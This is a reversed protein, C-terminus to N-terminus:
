NKEGKHSDKGGKSDGLDSLQIPSEVPSVGKIEGYQKEYEEIQKGLWISISKMIQPSSAYGDLANGSTCSFFFVDKGFAGLMGDCFKKPIQNLDVMNPNIM